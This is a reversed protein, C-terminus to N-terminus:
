PKLIFLSVRRNREAELLLPEPRRAYAEHATKIVTLSDLPLRNIKM